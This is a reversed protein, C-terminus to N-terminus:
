ISFVLGNIIWCSKQLWASLMVLMKEIHYLPTHAGIGLFGGSVFNPYVYREVGMFWWIHTSYQTTM